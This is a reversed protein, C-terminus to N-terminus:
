TYKRSNESKEIDLLKTILSKLSILKCSSLLRNYSITILVVLNDDLKHTNGVM